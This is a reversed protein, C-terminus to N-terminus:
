KLVILKPDMDWTAPLGKNKWGDVNKMGASPLDKDKVPIGEFGEWLNHLNTYGAKLLLDIAATSRHGSRCTIIYAANKDPFQTEFQRAFEANADLAFQNKKDDWKGWVKVPLSYAFPIHGVFQYEESTRVDIMPVKQSMAMRYATVADINKEIPITKCIRAEDKAMAKLTDVDAGFASAVFIVIVSFIIVAAYLKRIVM